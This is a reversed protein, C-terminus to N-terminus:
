RKDSRPAKADAGGEFESVSMGGIEGISAIIEDPNQAGLLGEYDRAELLRSRDAELCQLRQDFDHAELARIFNDVLKGMGEAESLTIEGAAAMATIAASAKMADEASNLPPLHFNLRRERLPPLVRDYYIRLAIPHGKRALEMLVRSMAELEGELLAEAALTTRNRSGPPRGAPNGSQGKPFSRGRRRPPDIVSRRMESSHPYTM